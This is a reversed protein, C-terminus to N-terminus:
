TKSPGLLCFIFSDNFRLKKSFVLCVNRKLCIGYCNETEEETKLLISSLLASYIHYRDFSFVTNDVQTTFVVCSVFTASGHKCNCDDDM